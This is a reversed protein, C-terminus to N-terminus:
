SSRKRIYWLITQKRRFAQEEAETALLNLKKWASVKSNVFALAQKDKTETPVVKAKM